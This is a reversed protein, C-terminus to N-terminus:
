KAGGKKASRPKRGDSAQIRRVLESTSLGKLLPALVIRGGYSEVFDRGVVGELGYDSGKVLVDPRVRQILGLVSPEDFVTIYDIVEIAALVRAREDESCIPRLPGKLARVGRDSNLGVVLVDGQRAAFKFYDVHGAHLIDFCGNTFVIKEGRARHLRLDALLNHLERRKDGSSRAEELLEATIEKRSVTQAGFKQVELGGAVNALRVADALPLSSALALAIVSIVMDGAGTVDYVARPRTPVMRGPKGKETLWAGEKDLTIVLADLRLSDLLRRSAKRLMAPGTLSVGTSLETETRNPTLLTARRYKTYDRGKIPDILVPVKRSRALRIVARTLWPTLVGKGYDSLVFADTQGAAAKIRTLLKEATEQPVPDAVERDVRLVQQPHRHQARGVYRTKITTARGKLRLLGGTRAGAERLRAVVEDGAADPGLVGFARVCAGLAQLNTVVSGAGGVRCEEDVVRLVQIPAEPSVREADGVVYRDLMVDGVVAIRPRGLREVLNVLQLDM